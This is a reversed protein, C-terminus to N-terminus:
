EFNLIATKVLTLSDVHTWALLLQNDNKAIKPFGSKRSSSTTSLIFSGGVKGNPNVKAVRIEASEETKEIWSVLVEDQSLFMLDVRGLGNGDDIRYPTHFTKGNDNSFAIKVQGKEGEMTFWAVAVNNRNTKVSPGNVPCGAIFWNDQFVPIPTTWTGKVQRVVSIDRIEKESRDRYVVIIGEETLAASTQCCDCIRDDLEVEDYLNGFRDFTAARLTMAGHHGHGSHESDVNEIDEGKTNRGDLWTAFIRDNPLPLMSVFGHEASISDRHPIFSPTWTKGGNDSQSIHVDYDYTGESSQQLWHAALKQDDNRYAVISPFDAWNVFWDAGSAIKQPKSWTNNELNSFLLADTTDNLYEIWSLYVQGNKTVFLNPEGSEKTPVVIEKIVPNLRKNDDMSSQCAFFLLLVVIFFLNLKMIWM